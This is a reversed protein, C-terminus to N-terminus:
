REQADELMEKLTDEIERALDRRLERLDRESIGGEPPPSEDIRARIVLERVELPM